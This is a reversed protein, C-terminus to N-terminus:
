ASREENEHDSCAVEIAEQSMRDNGKLAHRARELARQLRKRVSAPSEGKSWALQDRRRGKLVAAVVLEADKGVTRKLWAELTSVAEEDTASAAVGFISEEEDEAHRCLGLDDPLAERIRAAMKADKQWARRLERETNRVLTAALRHVMGTRCRDVEIALRDIIEMELGDRWCWARRILRQRIGDLGPWLGVTLIALAAGQNDARHVGEVLEAFIRDRHDLDGRDGLFRLLDMASEFSALSTGGARMSRYGTAAGPTEIWRVLGTHLDEWKTQM